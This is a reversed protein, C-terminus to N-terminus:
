SESFIKEANKLAVLLTKGQRSVVYDKRGNSDVTEELLGKQLFDSFYANFRVFNLNSRYMLRTKKSPILASELMDIYIDVWGRRRM